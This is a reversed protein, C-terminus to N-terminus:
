EDDDLIVMDIASQLATIANAVMPYNVAKKLRSECLWHAHIGGAETYVARRGVNNLTYWLERDLPKLWLFSSSSVIGSTRAGILMGTFLTYTYAHSAIIKSVAPSQDYQELLSQTKNRLLIESRRSPNAYYKAIEKLFADGTKRDKNVFVAFAAFLVQRHLPLDYSSTFREGLQQVFVLHAKDEIITHKGDESHILNHKKAFEVPSAAMAWPGELLPVKDLNKGLVPLVAPFFESMKESIDNTSYVDKFKAKPHRWYLLVALLVSIVAFPWRLVSGVNLALYYLDTANVTQELTKNTWNILVSYNPLFASIIKLEFSKIIFIIRVIEDHFLFYIVMFVVLIAVVAYVIGLGSDNDQSQQSM